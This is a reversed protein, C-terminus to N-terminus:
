PIEWGACLAGSAGQAGHVFASVSSSSAAVNPTSAAAVIPSEARQRHRRAWSGAAHSPASRGTHGGHPHANFKSLSGHRSNPPWHLKWGRCGYGVGRNPWPREARPHRCGRRLPQPAVAASIGSRRLPLGGARSTIPAGGGSGSPALPLVPAGSTSAGSPLPRRVQCDPRRTVGIGSCVLRLASRRLPHCRAPTVRGPGACSASLCLERVPQAHWDKADGANESQEQDWGGDDSQVPTSPVPFSILGRYRYRMRASTLMLAGFHTKYGSSPTPRSM